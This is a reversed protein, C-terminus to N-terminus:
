GRRGRAWGWGRRGARGGDDVGLSLCERCRRGARDTYFMDPVSEGLELVWAPLRGQPGAAHFNFNVQLRLGAARALAAAPAYADWSHRRPAPEFDAWHLDLSVGWVGLLRLAKLAALVAQPGPRPGPPPPL